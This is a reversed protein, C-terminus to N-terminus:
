SNDHYTTQRRDTVRTYQSLVVSPLIMRNENFRLLFTEDKLVAFKSAFNLPNGEIPPEFQTTKLKRQLAIDQFLHLIASIKAYM